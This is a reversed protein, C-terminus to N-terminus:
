LPLASHGPVEALEKRFRRPFLLETAFGESAAGSSGNMRCQVKISGALDRQGFWLLKRFQAGLTDRTM